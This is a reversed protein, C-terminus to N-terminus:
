LKQNLIKNVLEPNAKGRVEKMVLGMLMGFAGKGNKEIFLKNAAIIRDVVLEVDAETFMKLGLATIADQVIKGENKSLWSFVDALAEKTLVGSSVATFLAKIQTENVNEVTVGDRKLAKLTETLFVAVTSAAVSTEKVIDEFLKAWESDFLQKALKENLLYQQMIRGLKKEASEPMNALVEEILEKTIAQHPIDTEPYM